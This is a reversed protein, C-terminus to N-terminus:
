LVPNWIPVLIPIEPVFLMQLVDSFHKQMYHMFNPLAQLLNSKFFLNQPLIQFFKSIQFFIM